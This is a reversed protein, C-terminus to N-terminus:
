EEGATEGKVRDGTVGSKSIDQRSEGTVGEGTVGGKNMHTQAYIYVYISIYGM